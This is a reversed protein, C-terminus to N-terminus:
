KLKLTLLLADFVDISAQNQNDTELSLIYCTFDTFIAVKNEYDVENDDMNKTISQYGSVGNDNSWENESIVEFTEGEATDVDTADEKNDSKLMDEPSKYIDVLRDDSSIQIVGGVDDLYYEIEKDDADHDESSRYNKIQYTLEELSGEIIEDSFIGGQTNTSTDTENTTADGTGANGETDDSGCATFAFVIILALFIVLFKGIKNTNTNTNAMIMGKRVQYDDDGNKINTM